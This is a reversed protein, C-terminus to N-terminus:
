KNLRDLQRKTDKDKLSQRKDYLKKGRALAIRLKAWGKENIFLHTPIITFGQDKLKKTLKKLEQKQLLLKRERKPEHNNYGGQEYEAINMNRVWLEGKIFICYAEAISAQSNRISKIETGTLQLGAVFKEILEYEYSARRNKIDVPSAM